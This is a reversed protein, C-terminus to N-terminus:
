DVLLTNYYRFFRILEQEDRSSTKEKKVFDSLKKQHQDLEKIFKKVNSIKTPLQAPLKVYYTDSQRIYKAPETNIFPKEPEAEQFTINIKKLLQVEGNVIRQFFAQEFEKVGQLAECVFTDQGFIVEGILLNNAFAYVTNEYQYELEANAITIRMPVQSFKTGSKLILKGEVFADNLYPSGEVNENSELDAHKVAMESKLKDLQHTWGTQVQARTINGIFALALCVNIAKM